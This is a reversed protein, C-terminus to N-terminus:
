VGLTAKIKAALKLVHWQWLDGMNTDLNYTDTGTITIRFFPPVVEQEQEQPQAEEAM